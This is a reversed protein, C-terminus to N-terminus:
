PFIEISRTDNDKASLAALHGRCPRLVPVQDKRMAEEPGQESSSFPYDLDLLHTDNEESLSNTHPCNEDLLPYLGDQPTSQAPLILLEEKQSMTALWRSCACSGSFALPPRKDNTNSLM